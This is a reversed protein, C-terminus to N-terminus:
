KEWEGGLYRYVIPVGLSLAHNKGTKMGNSIGRDCYLVCKDVVYYWDTDMEIGLDRQAQDEEQLVQTYLLHGMFPTENNKISHLLCAQAYAVNMARDFTQEELTEGCGKFPSELAVLVLNPAKARRKALQLNIFSM